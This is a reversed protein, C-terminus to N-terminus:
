TWFFWARSAWPEPLLVEAGPGYSPPKLPEAEPLSTPTRALNPPPTCPPTLFPFPESTRSQSPLLDQSVAFLGRDPIRGAWGPTYLLILPPRARGRSTQRPHAPTELAGGGPASAKPTLPPATAPAPDTPPAPAGPPCSSPTRAPRPPAPRPPAAAASRSPLVLRPRGGGGGGGGGCTALLSAPQHLLRPRHRASEAQAAARGPLARPGSGGGRRLLYPRVLGGSLAPATDPDARRDTQRDTHVLQMSSKSPPRIPPSILPQHGGSGSGARLFRGPSGQIGLPVRPAEQGVGVM